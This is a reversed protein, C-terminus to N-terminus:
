LLTGELILESVGAPDVWMPVHGWRPKELWRTHAPLSPRYRSGRTLIWDHRGFAVTVPVAIERASFPARTGDFTQEFARSAALDVVAHRADEPPMRRSGVSLPVALALERLLPVGM